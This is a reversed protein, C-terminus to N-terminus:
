PMIRLGTVAHAAALLLAAAGLWPHMERATANGSRMARATLFNGTLLLILVTGIRFHLSEAFELDDRLVASSLAGGIWSVFVLAYALPAIRAHRALLARADRRRARSRLGLLGVYVLLVLVLGGAIPHVYTLM